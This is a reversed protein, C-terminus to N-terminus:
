TQLWSMGRDKAAAIAADCNEDLAVGVIKFDDRSGFAAQLSKLPPIVRECPGCWSAWFDLVVVKGIEDRLHWPTGSSTPSSVDPASKNQYRAELRAFYRRWVYATYPRYSLYGALYGALFVLVVAGTVGLSRRRRGAVLLALGLGAFAALIYQLKVM